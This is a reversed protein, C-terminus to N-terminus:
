IEFVNPRAFSPQKGLFSEKDKDIRVNVGNVSMIIKEDRHRQGRRSAQCLIMMLYEIFFWHCLGRM